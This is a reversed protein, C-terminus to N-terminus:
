GSLLERRAYAHGYEADEGSKSHGCVGGVLDNRSLM